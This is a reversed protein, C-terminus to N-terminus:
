PASTPSPPSLIQTTSQMKQEEALASACPDTMDGEEHDDSLRRTERPLRSRRMQQQPARPSTPLSWVSRNMPPAKFTTRPKQLADVQSRGQFSGSLCGLLGRGVAARSSCGACSTQRACAVTSLAAGPPVLAPLRRRRPALFGRESLLSSGRRGRARASARRRRACARIAPPRARRRPRPGRRRAAAAAGRQPYLVCAACTWMHGGRELGCAAM